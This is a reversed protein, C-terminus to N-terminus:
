LSSVFWKGQVERSKKKIIMLECFLLTTLNNGGSFPKYLVTICHRHQIRIYKLLNWGQKVVDPTKYILKKKIIWRTNNQLFLRKTNLHISDSIKQYSNLTNSSPTLSAQYLHYTTPYTWFIFQPQVMWRTM